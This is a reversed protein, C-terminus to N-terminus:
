GLKAALEAAKERALEAYVETINAHKHGLRVQAADLGGGSKRAETRAASFSLYRSGFIPPFCYAM